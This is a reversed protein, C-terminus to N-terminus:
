GCEYTAQSYRCRFAVGGLGNVANVRDLACRACFNINNCAEAFNWINTSMMNDEGEGCTKPNRGYLISGTFSIRCKVIGTFSEVILEINGFVAWGLNLEEIEYVPSCFTQGGGIHRDMERNLNGSVCSSVGFIGNCDRNLSSIVSSFVEEIYGACVALNGNLSVSVLM